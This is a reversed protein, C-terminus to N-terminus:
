MSLVVIQKDLYQEVDISNTSLACVSNFYQTFTDVTQLVPYGFDKSKYHMPITIRPRIKFVLNKAQEPGITYHGGIPILLVDANQLEHIQDSTLPCGLDGLHVVKYQGDEIIHITNLGRLKGQQDDHFSSLTTIKSKIEKPIIEIVEKANHDAHQHSCLVLNAKERIPKLGNVSGDKYPDIIITENRTEIKFCSHGIWTIKM